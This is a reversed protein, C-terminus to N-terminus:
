ERIKKILPIVGACLKEYAPANGRILTGLENLTQTIQDYWDGRIYGEWNILDALHQADTYPPDTPAIESEHELLAADWWAGPCETNFWRKHPTYPLEDGGIYRAVWRRARIATDIMDVPPANTRYDGILVIGANHVNAQWDGAHYTILNPNNLLYCRGGRGVAMTYAIAPWGHQDVHLRHYQDLIALEGDQGADESLPQRGDAGHHYVVGTIASLEREPYEGNEFPFRDRVDILQFESPESPDTGGSDDESVYQAAREYCEVFRRRNPNDAFQMNPGGNYRSASEYYGYEPGLVSFRKYYAGLQRAAVRVANAYVFFYARVKAINAPSQSGDGLKNGNIDTAYAVTQQYAGFSVDPWTGWREAQENLSDTECIFQAVLGRESIGYEAAVQATEASVDNGQLTILDHIM